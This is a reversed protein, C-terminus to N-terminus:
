LSLCQAIDTYQEMDIDDLKSPDEILQICIQINTGAAGPDM